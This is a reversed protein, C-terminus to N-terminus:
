DSETVEPAPLQPTIELALADRLSEEIDALIEADSVGPAGHDVQIKEEFMGVSLGLLRLAAVRDAARQGEAEQWLASEVRARTGLAKRARKSEIQARARDVYRAVAPSRWLRSAENQESKSGRGEVAGGRYAALYAGTITPAGGMVLDAFRQGKASLRERNTGM